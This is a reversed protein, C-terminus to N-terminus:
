SVYYCKFVEYKKKCIPCINKRNTKNGIYFSKDPCYYVNNENLVAKLGKHYAIHDNNTAFVMLNNSNNNTRNGDKHHVCEERTLHRNLQEEAVLIHEYVCGNSAAKPHELYYYAVYGNINIKKDKDYM